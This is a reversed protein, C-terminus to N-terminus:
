DAAPNNSSRVVNQDILEDIIRSYLALLDEPPSGVLDAPTPLPVTGAYGTRRTGLCSGCDPSRM